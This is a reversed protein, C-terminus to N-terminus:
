SGFSDFEEGTWKMGNSLYELQEEEEETFGVESLKLLAKAMEYKDITMGREVFKAVRIITGVIDRPRETNFALENGFLYHSEALGWITGHKAFFMNHKFDFGGLVEEPTGCDKMIIQIDDISVANNTIFIRSGDIYGEYVTGYPRKFYAHVKHHLKFHEDIAKALEKSEVFMDIDKYTRDKQYTYICGGAVYVEDLFQDQLFVPLMDAVKLIADDIHKLIGADYRRVQERKM